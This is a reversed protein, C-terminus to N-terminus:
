SVLKALDSEASKLFATVFIEYLMKSYAQRVESESHFVIIEIFTNEDKKLTEKPPFVRECILRDFLNSDLKIIRILLNVISQLYKLDRSNTLLDFVLKDVVNYLDL